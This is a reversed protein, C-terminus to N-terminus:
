RVRAEEWGGLDQGKFALYGERSGGPHRALVEPHGQWKERFRAGDQLEMDTDQAATMDARRSQKDLHCVAVGELIIPVLTEDARKHAALRLREIYDTDGFAVYFRPDFWGVEERLRRWDMLWCAGNYGARLRIEPGPPRALGPAAGLGTLCDPSIFAHGTERRAELLATLTTPGLLVDSTVVLVLDSRSLALGRNLSCWVGVNREHRVLVARDRGAIWALVPGLAPDTSHNDLIAVSAIGPIGYAAIHTLCLWASAPANRTPILVDVTM